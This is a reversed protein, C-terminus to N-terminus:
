KCNRLRKALLPLGHAFRLQRQSIILVHAPNPKAGIFLFAVTATVLLNRTDVLNASPRQRAGHDAPRGIPESRSEDQDGATDRHARRQVCGSRDARCEIQVRSRKENSDPDRTQAVQRGGRCNGSAEFSPAPEGVLTPPTWANNQLLAGKVEFDFWWAGPICTYHMVGGLQFGGMKNRTQVFVTNGAGAPNASVTSFM